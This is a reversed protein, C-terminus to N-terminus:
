RVSRRARSNSPAKPLGPCIGFKCIRLAYSRTIPAPLSGSRRQPRTWSTKEPTPSAPTFGGSAPKRRRGIVASNSRAARVASTARLVNSTDKQLQKAARHFRRREHHRVALYRCRHWHGDGHATATRSRTADSDNAQDFKIQKRDPSRFSDGSGKRKFIPFDAWKEFFNKRVKELDKLAHQLSHCAAEKLWTTEGGNRWGTLHKAMAMYGIFKNGAEQNEKQM